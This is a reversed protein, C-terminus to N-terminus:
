RLIEPCRGRCQCGRGAAASKGCIRIKRDKGRPPSAAAAVMMGATASLGEPACGRKFGQCLQRAQRAGRFVRSPSFAKDSGTKVAKCLILSGDVMRVMRYSKAVPTLM